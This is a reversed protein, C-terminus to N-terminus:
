CGGGRQTKERIRKVFTSQIRIRERAKCKTQMKKPMCINESLSCDVLAARCFFVMLKFPKSAKWWSVVRFSAVSASDSRAALFRLVLFSVSGTKLTLMGIDSPANTKSLADKLRGLEAATLVVDLGCDLGGDLVGGPVRAGSGRARSGRARSGSARFGRADYEFTSKLGSVTVNNSVGCKGSM